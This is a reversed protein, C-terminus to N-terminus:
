EQVLKVLAWAKKVANEAPEGYAEVEAAPSTRKIVCRWQFRDVQGLYTINWGDRWANAERTLENLVNSM